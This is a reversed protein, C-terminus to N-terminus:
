SQFKKFPDKYIYIPKNFPDSSLLHGQSTSGQQFPDQDIPMNRLKNLDFHIPLKVGQQSLRLFYWEKDLGLIREMTKQFRSDKMAERIDEEIPEDYMPYWSMKIPQAKPWPNVNDSSKDMNEQQQQAKLKQARTQVVM